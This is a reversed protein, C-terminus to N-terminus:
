KVERGIRDVKIWMKCKPCYWQLVMNWTEHVLGCKPCKVQKMNKGRLIVMKIIMDLGNVM